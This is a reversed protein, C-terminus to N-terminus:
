HDHHEHGEEVADAFLMTHIRRELASV